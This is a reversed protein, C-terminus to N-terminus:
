IYVRTKIGTPTPLQPSAQSSFPAGFSLGGQLSPPVGLAVTLIEADREDLHEQHSSCVRTTSSQSKAPMEHGHHESCTSTVCCPKGALTQTQLLSAAAVASGMSEQLGHIKSELISGCLLTSLPWHRLCLLTGLIDRQSGGANPPYHEPICHAMKLFM